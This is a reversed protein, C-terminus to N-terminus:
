SVDMQIENEPPEAMKSITKKVNDNNELVCHLPNTKLYYVYYLTLLFLRFDPSSVNRIKPGFNYLNQKM